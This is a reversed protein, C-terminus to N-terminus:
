KGVVQMSDVLVYPYYGLSGLEVEKSVARVHKFDEYINGSLMTNELRGTIRGKAIAFGIARVAIHGQTYNSSHFGMGGSLFIGEDLGAIMEDLSAEGPELWLNAPWTTPMASTGGGFLARKFGNGSSRAGLKAGTRLDLLFSRLVGREVLARKETPVGEDDFGRAGVRPSHPDDVLTIKDSLIQKEHKDMLPSTKKVLEEGSIGACLALAFMYLAVPDWIVPMRKTAPTVANETWRYRRIFERVVEAPYEFPAVESKFRYVSIGAGKIPASITFDVNTILQEARTGGSTAIRIHEEEKSMTINLSIDPLVERVEEKARECMEIMRATPYNTAEQSYSQVQPFGTAQSFSYPIENGHKASDRAAELLTKPDDLTTASAIGLKGQKKVRMMVGSVRNSSINRLDWNGYRVSTDAKEKHYIESSDFLEMSANLVEDIM